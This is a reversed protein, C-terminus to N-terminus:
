FNLGLHSSKYNSIVSTMGHRADWDKTPNMIYSETASPITTYTNVKHKGIM